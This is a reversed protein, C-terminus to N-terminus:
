GDRNCRYRIRLGHFDAVPHDGEQHKRPVTEQFRSRLCHIQGHGQPCEQKQLSSGDAREHIQNQEHMNETEPGVNHFFVM